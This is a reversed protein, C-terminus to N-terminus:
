RDDLTGEVIPGPKSSRVYNLADLFRALEAIPRVFDCVGLQRSFSTGAGHNLQAEVRLQYPGNLSDSWFSKVDDRWVKRRRNLLIAQVIVGRIQPENLPLKLGRDLVTLLFYFTAEIGFRDLVAVYAVPPLVAIVLPTLVVM